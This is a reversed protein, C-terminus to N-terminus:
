AVAIWMGAGVRGAPLLRMGLPVLVAGAVRVVLATAWPWRQLIRAAPPPSTVLPLALLAMVPLLPHRALLTGVDGLTLSGWALARTHGLRILLPLTWFSTLAVAGALLVAAEVMRRARPGPASLAAVVVLTAAAPTHAPHTVVIAAMTILALGWPRPAEHETWRILALQLLPPVGWGFGGPLV